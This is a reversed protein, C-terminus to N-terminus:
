QMGEHSALGVCYASSGEHPLRSPQMTDDGRYFSGWTSDLRSRKDLGAMRATDRHPNTPSQLAPFKRKRLNSSQPFSNSQNHHLSDAAPTPEEDIVMLEDQLPEHEAACESSVSEDDSIEDLAPESEYGDGDARQKKIEEREQSKTLHGSPLLWDEVREGKKFHEVDIHNYRENWAGVGQTKLPLLVRCFGCWYHSPRPDGDRNIRNNCLSARVEEDDTEHHKKLHQVYIEQRYFLRACPLGEQTADPLTCRWCQAHFHQSNEHRKWDAKSGFTKNCKSFTCGYPREHRKKHKKMECRLRTRKTCFECQIWGKKERDEDLTAQSPTHSSGSPGSLRDLAASLIRQLMDRKRDSLEVNQDIIEDGSESQQSRRRENTNMAKTMANIMNVAAENVMDDMKGNRAPDFQAPLPVKQDLSSDLNLARLAPLESPLPKALPPQVSAADASRDNYEENMRLVTDPTLTEPSPFGRDVSVPSVSSGQCTDKTIGESQSVPEAQLAPAEEPMSDIFSSGLEQPKVCTEYWEHSRRLLEDVDEDSHMRALHQRFNDLRPWKKNRRPCNHGFCMYLVKPGREPEQKHVCKKHRALDNITGFGEKRTCNPEDCKFLKKHRAEHKRKDSPCKGTWQCGPYDCKIVDQCLLSPSDMRDLADMTDGYPATNLDLASVRDDQEHDLPALFPSCASELAYSAAVSRTTCGQTSYGSDSLHIGTYQSGAESPTSHHGSSSRRDLGYVQHSRPVVFAAPYIPGGTVQLPNWAEQDNRWRTLPPYASADFLQPLPSSTQKHYLPWPQLISPHSPHPIAPESAFQFGLFSAPDGLTLDSPSLGDSSLDVQSAGSPPVARTGMIGQLIDSSNDWPKSPDSTSM